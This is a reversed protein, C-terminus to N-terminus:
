QAARSRQLIRLHDGLYEAEPVGKIKPQEKLGDYWYLTVPPMNGRAMMTVM